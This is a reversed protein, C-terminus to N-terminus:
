MKGGKIDWTVKRDSKVVIMAKRLKAANSIQFSWLLQVKASRLCHEPPLNEIKCDKFFPAFLVCDREECHDM